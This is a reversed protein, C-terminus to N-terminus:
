AGKHQVFLSPCHELPSNNWIGYSNEKKLGVSTLSQGAEGGGFQMIFINTQGCFDPMYTHLLIQEVLMKIGWYALEWWGSPYQGHVLEGM